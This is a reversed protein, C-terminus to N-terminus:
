WLVDLFPKRLVTEIYLRIKRTHYKYWLSLVTKLSDWKIIYSSMKINLCSKPKRQGSFAQKPDCFFNISKFNSIVFHNYLAIPMKNQYSSWIQSSDNDTPPTFLGPAEM